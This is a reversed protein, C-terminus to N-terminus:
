LTLLHLACYFAVCFAMCACESCLVIFTGDCQLLAKGDAAAAAGKLVCLWWEWRQYHAGLATNVPQHDHLHHHHEWFPSFPMMVSFSATFYPINGTVTHRHIHTSPLIVLSERFLCDGQTGQKHTHVSSAWETESGGLELIILAVQIVKGHPHLTSAQRERRTHLASKTVDGM